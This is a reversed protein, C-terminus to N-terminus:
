MDEEIQKFTLIRTFLLQIEKHSGFNSLESIYDMIKPIEDESKVILYKIDQAKFKLGLNDFHPKKPNLKQFKKYEKIGMAPRIDLKIDPIFRWERENYFKYNNIRGNERKLEGQYPKHFRQFNATFNIMKKFKEFEEQNTESLNEMSEFLQDKLYSNSEIYLVPNLKNKIAWEKKMGIAYYGYSEFHNSAQSLNIDCFSIMPFAIEIPELCYSVLFGNNVISSLKDISNTFHFLTNSSVAM